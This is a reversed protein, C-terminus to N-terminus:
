RYKKPKWGVNMGLGVSFWYVHQHVTFTEQTKEQGFYQESYTINYKPFAMYFGLNLHINMQAWDTNRRAFYATTQVGYTWSKDRAREYSIYKWYNTGSQKMFGAETIPYVNGRGVRIGPEFHFNGASFRRSLDVYISNIEYNKVSPVSFAYGAHATEMYTALGKLPQTSYSNTRFGVGIGYKEYLFFNIDAGYSFGAKPKGYYLGYGHPADVNPQGPQLILGLHFINVYMSFPAVPAKTSDAQSFGTFAAFLCITTFLLKNM